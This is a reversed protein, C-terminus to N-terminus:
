ARPEPRFGEWLHLLNGALPSGWMNAFTCSYHKKQIQFLGRRSPFNRRMSQQHNQKLNRPRRLMHHFHGIRQHARHRERSNLTRINIICTQYIRGPETSRYIDFEVLNQWGLSGKMIAIPLACRALDVNTSHNQSIAAFSILQHSPFTEFAIRKNRSM